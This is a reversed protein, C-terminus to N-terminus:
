KNLEIEFDLICEFTRGWPFGYKILKNENVTYKEGNIIYEKDKFADLVGQYDLVSSLKESKKRKWQRQYTDKM